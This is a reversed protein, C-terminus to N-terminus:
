RVEKVPKYRVVTYAEAIRYEQQFPLKALEAKAEELTEHESRVVWRNSWHNKRRQIVYKGMDCGGDWQVGAREMTSHPYLPPSRTFNGSYLGFGQCGDQTSSKLRALDSSSRRAISIEKPYSSAWLSNASRKNGSSWFYGKVIRQPQWRM